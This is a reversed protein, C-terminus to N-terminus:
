FAKRWGATLMWDTELQPGNLDQMVPILIEVGFRHGRLVGGQGALSVGVDFDIREGGQFNPDATRAPDNLFAYHAKPGALFPSSDSLCASCNECISDDNELVEYPSPEGTLESWAVEHPGDPACITIHFEGHGGGMSAHTPAM